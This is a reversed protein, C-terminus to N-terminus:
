YDWHTVRGDEFFVTYPAYHGDFCRKPVIPKYTSKDLEYAWSAYVKNGESRTTICPTSGLAMEVQTADMGELPYGKDIADRIAPDYTPYKEKMLIDRMDEGCGMLATCVLLGAVTRSLRTM